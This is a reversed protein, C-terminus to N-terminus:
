SRKAQKSCLHARRRVGELKRNVQGAVDAKIEFLNRKFMTYALTRDDFDRETLQETADRRFPEAREQFLVTCTKPPTGLM